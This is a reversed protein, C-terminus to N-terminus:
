KMAPLFVSITTGQNVESELRITGSLKKVMESCIYLGLGTGVSESTARYFMDFVKPQHHAEIGKGNDAVKIYLGEPRKGSVDHEVAVLVNPNTIDTRSYKVSNSILNKLIINLRYSDFYVNEDGTYTNYFKFGGPLAYQLDEFIGDIIKKLNFFEPERAKRSNKSYILIDGITEDLREISKLARSNYENGTQPFDPLKGMLTLLGKVSLLPSRLDHSVRYVMNDLETNTHILEDNKHDLELNVKSLEKVKEDIEGFSQLLRNQVKNSLLILYVIVMLTISAASSINFLRDQIIQEPSYNIEQIRFDSFLFFITLLSCLLAAVIAYFIEKGQFAIFAGVTIPFYFAILGSQQAVFLQNITAVFIIGVNSLIKSALTNGKYYLFYSIASIPILLATFWAELIKETWLDQIVFPFGSFFTIIMILEHLQDSKSKLLSQLKESSPSEDM